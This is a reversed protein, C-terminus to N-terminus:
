SFCMFFVIFFVVTVYSLIINCHTLPVNDLGLTPWERPYAMVKTFLCFILDNYTEPFSGM